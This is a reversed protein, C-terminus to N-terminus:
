GPDRSLSTAGAPLAAADRDSGPAHAPHEIAFRYIALLQEVIADSSFRREYTSRAARGYSAYRGPRDGVDRLVGALAAVSGPQFLVGDVGDAILEPFAGHAPALSPVGAAMAEIVVLGFPEEWASPVVAARARAFLSECDSRSLMGLWDVAPQRAAWAALQDELPGAGAVVLRLPGSPREASYREWAEMLLDLGKVPSLRGAYVVIPESPHVPPVSSRPVLNPKVFLREAPLGDAAIVDRQAGSLFVYASVMTRWARRHAVLGAAVPLTALASEHYCGHRIGPLPLQRGVCDHCVAGDRFLIGSACVLRYNHLTAVVPVRAARCAYLVSPSLLPFTNHVHVVDPQAAKLARALSRRAAQSWVVQAPLLAKRTVSFSDIDDNFREFREVSHGRRVLAAVEEDVVKDEGGPSDSRYRNHVVLVKM